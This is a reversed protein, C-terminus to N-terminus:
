NQIYNITFGLTLTTDNHVLNSLSVNKYAIHVLLAKTEQSYLTDGEAVPTGDLYTVTYDLYSQQSADLETMVFSGIKADITGFNVVNVTYEMYDGPLGLTIDFSISTDNTIIPTASISASSSSVLDCNTFHIDWTNGTITTSGSINLRANLSSYGIGICCLLIILISYMFKRKRKVKFRRRM